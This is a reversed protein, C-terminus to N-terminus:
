ARLALAPDLAAARRAPAIAALTGCLTAVVCSIVLLQATLDIPFLANGDAGRVFTTFMFVLLAAMGAGLLSGVLGVLSGQFLFVRTMQGRSAGMARLIGIERTKQVVAVVLVSAIGLMVVISVFVRIIATSASQANLASLLQSNTTMWSEVLLPTVGAVRAAVVDAAFVDQVRLDISTVGGPLGYLSQATRLPLYVARRNLERNGLDLTGSIRYQDGEDALGGIGTGTSLTIRDGITAGLDRALETGVLVDGPELQLAGAVLKDNLDVIRDYRSLDIGSVAVSNRGEGRIAIAAGSVLPSVAVVGPVLEYAAVVQQWNDISRVKRPATQVTAVSADSGDIQARAVPEIPKAVIHAQAGLTRRITNSQLGVVLASIFIVVAVGVMVGGVILASQARGERLFRLAIQLEFRM